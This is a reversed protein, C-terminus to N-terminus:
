RQEATYVHIKHTPRSFSLNPFTDAIREIDTHGAAPVTQTRAVADSVVNRHIVVEGHKVFASLERTLRGKETLIDRRSTEVVGCFASM